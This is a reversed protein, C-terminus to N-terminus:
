QKACSELDRDRQKRHETATPNMDVVGDAGQQMCFQFHAGPPMIRWIGGSPIAPCSGGRAFQDMTADVYIRCNRCALIERDRAERESTAVSPRVGTCWEVHARTNSTYRPGAFGCGLGKAEEVQERARRAYASCFEPGGLNLRSEVGTNADPAEIRMRRKCAAIEADRDREQADAEARPVAKCWDVHGQYPVFYHAHTLGCQRGMEKRDIARKAYADCRQQNEDVAIKPEMVLYACRLGIRDVWMGAGGYVGTVLGKGVISSPCLLREIRYEQLNDGVYTWNTDRIWTDNKRPDYCLVKLNAIALIGDVRRTTAEVGSVVGNPGCGLWQIRGGRGGVEVGPDWGSTVQGTRRDVGKCYAVLADLMDGQRVRFANVFEGERCDISYPAGGPGGAELPQATTSIASALALALYVFCKQLTSTMPSM